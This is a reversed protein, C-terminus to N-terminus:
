NLYRSQRAFLHTLMFCRKRTPSLIKPSKFNSFFLGLRPRPALSTHLIESIIWCSLNWQWLDFSSGLQQELKKLIVLKKIFLLVIWLKYKLFNLQSLLFTKPNELNPTSSGWVISALILEIFIYQFFLALSTLQNQSVSKSLVATWFQYM